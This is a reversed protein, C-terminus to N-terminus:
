CRPAAPPAGYQISCWPFTRCNKSSRWWRACIEVSGLMGIKVASIRIDGSLADLMETLLKSEIPEVRLVGQTNQVTLATIAAVGNCNHAAITKLDAAVGAGASPDFGAITLVIRHHHHGNAGMAGNSM